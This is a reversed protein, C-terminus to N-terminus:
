PRTTLLGSEHEQAGPNLDRGQSRSDQNINKTTKRLGGPLHRFLAKCNPWSRKWGCVKFDIM